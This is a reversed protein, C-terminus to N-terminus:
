PSTAEVARIRASFGDDVPGAQARDNAYFLTRAQAASVGDPFLGLEELLEDSYGPLAIRKDLGLSVDNIHEYHAALSSSCSNLATNYWDPREHLSNARNLMDVFFERTKEPGADIPFVWTDDRQFNTRLAIVDREDGIVYMIEFQRFLGRLPDFVEGEERRVEVSVVVYRPGEFEFSVMVHGVGETGGFETLVFWGRRLESLNYSDDRWRPEWVIGGGSGEAYRFDRIDHIVVQDGDFEARPARSQPESWVRDNRPSAAAWHLGVVVLLGAVVAWGRRWGLVLPAALAAIAFLAAVALRVGSPPGFGGLLALSAAGWATIVLLPLTLALNLLWRLPRRIRM